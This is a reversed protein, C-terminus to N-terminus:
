LEHAPLRGAHQLVVGVMAGEIGQKGCQLPLLRVIAPLLARREARDTGGDTGAATFVRACHLGECLVKDDVPRGGVVGGEGGELRQRPQTRSGHRSYGRQAPANRLAVSPLRRMPVGSEVGCVM